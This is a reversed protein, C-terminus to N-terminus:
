TRTGPWPSSTSPGDSGSRVVRPQPSRLPRRRAAARVRDRRPDRGVYEVLADIGTTTLQIGTFPHMVDETELAGPPANIAGPIDAVLDIGIDMKLFEYGQDLRRRLQAVM